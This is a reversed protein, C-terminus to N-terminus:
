NFILKVHSYCKPCVIIPYITGDDHFDVEWNTAKTQWQCRPCFVYLKKDM